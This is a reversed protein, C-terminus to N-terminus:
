SLAKAMLRRDALSLGHSYSVLGRRLFRWGDALMQGREAARAEYNTARQQARRRSLATPFTASAGRANHTM